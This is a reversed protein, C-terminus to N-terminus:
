SGLKLRDWYTTAALTWSGSDRKYNKAHGNGSEGSCIHRLRWQLLSRYGLFINVEPYGIEREVVVARASTAFLLGARAPYWNLDFDKSKFVLKKGPRHESSLIMSDEETFGCAILRRVKSPIWGLVHQVAAGVGCDYSCGRPSSRGRRQLGNALSVIDAVYRVKKTQIYPRVDVGAWFDAGCSERFPSDSFTKKRNIQFGVIRFLSEVDALLEKPFLLDDGYVAFRHKPLKCGRTAAIARVLAMFILSELEFTYGNGMSSFRHLKQTGSDNYIYKCRTIDLAHFWDDPILLRILMYAISDSANSLDVSCLKGNISALRALARNHDQGNDLDVGAKMLRRRIMRGLGLQMWGNFLPQIGINRHKVADKPVQNYKEGPMLLVDLLNDAEENFAIAEVWVPCEQLCAVALPLLEETVSPTAAFKDFISTGDVGASTGPGFKMERMWENPCFDGLIDAIEGKALRLWEGIEEGFFAPYQQITRIRKNAQECADECEQFSQFARQEPSEGSLTFPYKRAFDCAQRADFYERPCNFAEPRVEHSVLSRIDGHKACIYLGLSTPCDLEEFLVLCAALFQGDDVIARNIFDKVSFAKRRGPGSQKPKGFCARREAQTLSHDQPHELNSSVPGDGELLAIFNEWPILCPDTSDMLACGTVDANSHGSTM